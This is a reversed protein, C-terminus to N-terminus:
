RPAASKSFTETNPAVGPLREALYDVLALVRPALARSGPFVLGVTAVPQRWLPLIPVLKGQEVLGGGLMLPIQGVGAGALTAQLIISPDSSQLRAPVEVVAQRRGHQLRLAVGAGPRGILLLPHGALDAPTAPLTRTALYAPSACLQLPNELLPRGAMGAPTPGIRVALDYGERVLDVNRSTLDLQVSLAPYRALFDPLLPGIFSVGFSYPATLRVVGKPGDRFSSAVAVAIDLDDLLQRAHPLFALGEDTLKMGQVSRQMLRVGLEQELERILRSLTSKPTHEARAVASLGGLDACRVLARVQDMQM